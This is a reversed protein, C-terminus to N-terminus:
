SLNSDDCARGVDAFDRHWVYLVVHGMVNMPGSVSLPHTEYLVTSWPSLLRSPEKLISGVM